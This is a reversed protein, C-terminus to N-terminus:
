GRLFRAAFVAVPSLFICVTLIQAITEYASILEIM